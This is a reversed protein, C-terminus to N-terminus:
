KAKGKKPRILVRRYTRFVEGNGNYYGLSPHGDCISGTNGQAYYLDVFEQKLGTNTPISKDYDLGLIEFQEPCYKDLFTIPVGMMGDYDSPICEVFPVEIADCNDYHPYQIASDEVHLKKKLKKNFKLNHAMTDLM